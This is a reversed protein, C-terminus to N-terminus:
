ATNLAIDSGRVNAKRATGKMDIPQNKIHSPHKRITQQRTVSDYARLAEAAIHTAPGCAMLVGRELALKMADRTAGTHAAMRAYHCACGSCRSAVGFAAGLIAMSVPSSVGNQENSSLISRFAHSSGTSFRSMADLDEMLEDAYPQLDHM